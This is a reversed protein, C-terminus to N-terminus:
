FGPTFIGGPVVEVGLLEGSPGRARITEPAITIEANARELRYFRLTLFQHRGVTPRIRKADILIEGDRNSRVIWTEWNTSSEVVSVRTIHKPFTIVFSIEAPNGTLMVPIDVPASDWSIVKGIELRVAASIAPAPMEAPQTGISPTPTLGPMPISVGGFLLFVTGFVVLAALILGFQQM